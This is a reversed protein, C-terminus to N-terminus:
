AWPKQPNANVIQMTIEPNQTLYYYYWPKDANANVIDMTINSNRGLTFFDWPKDANTNVIEKTINSNQSLSPFKWPKDPNANDFDMTLNPNQPQIKEHKLIVDSVNAKIRDEGTYALVLLIMALILSTSPTALSTKCAVYQARYAPLSILCNHVVSQFPM